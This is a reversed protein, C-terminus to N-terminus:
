HFGFVTQYDASLNRFEVHDNIIGRSLGLVNYPDSIFAKVIFHVVLHLLGPFKSM